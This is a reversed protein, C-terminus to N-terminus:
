EMSPYIFGTIETYEDETIGLAKNVVAWMRHINWIGTDYYQKFRTFNKSHEM